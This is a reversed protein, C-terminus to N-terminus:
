IPSHRHNSLDRNKCLTLSPSFLCGHMLYLRYRKTRFDQSKKFYYFRRFNGAKYAEHHTYMM